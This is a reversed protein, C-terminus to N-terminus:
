ATGYRLGLKNLWQRYAIATRDSRLHLEAQLDLPLLEPRQSEVIPIDQRSVVDQFARLQEDSSSSAYNLALILWSLSHQADLPTVANLISFKQQHQVKLFYATLPRLVRYTYSVKASQGTGDPDPQWVSIDRAIIGDVSTEVEYDSVETHGPDGLVGAHVFPFHGVDLFNEIVRPGLAQFPYPGAHVLRFSADGGEPFPPVDNAPTGLCAWILGYRETVHFATVRARAPPPQAPHAPMRVCRASADYQWGHYPCHLCDQAVRGGSLKAGRHLCLDQWLFLGPSGPASDPAPKGAHDRASNRWLVLDHGLLRIARVAGHHVETSRAIVHWDNLLIPDDLVSTLPKDLTL